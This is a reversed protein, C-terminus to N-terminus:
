AAIVHADREDKVIAGDRLLVHRRARSLLRQDHTAFVCTLHQARSLESLLDLVQTSSASDLNATPEDAIVLRPKTVLARAIAVRQRQGGSLQDPRHHAFEAMSVQELVTLARQRAEARATGSIVLPMMVNDLASLVPILHFNQFVFGINQARCASLEDDSFGSFPRGEFLLEGEDPRDILGLLNLLTSKGCGSPGWIAVMEGHGVSLDVGNLAHVQTKGLRYSRRVGTLTLLADAVPRNM